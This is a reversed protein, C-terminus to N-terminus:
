MFKEKESFSVRQTNYVVTKWDPLISISHAPLFYKEGDVFKDKQRSQQGPISLM